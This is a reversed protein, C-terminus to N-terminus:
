GALAARRKVEINGAVWALILYFPMEIWMWLPVGIMVANGIGAMLSLVGVIMAVGLPGERLPHRDPQPNSASLRAAVWGGCFALALHGLIPLIFAAAPLTPIYAKWSEVRAAKFDNQEEPNLGEPMEQTLEAPLPYFHSSVEMSIVWNLAMGVALGAFIAGINRLM